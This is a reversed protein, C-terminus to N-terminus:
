RLRFRRILNMMYSLFKKGVLQRVIREGVMSKLSGPAYIFGMPNFICIALIRVIDVVKLQEARNFIGLIYSQFLHWKVDRCTMDSPMKKFKKFIRYVNFHSLSYAGCLYSLVYMINRLNHTQFFHISKIALQSDNSQLFYQLSERNSLGDFEVEDVNKKDLMSNIALGLQDSASREEIGLINQLISDAELLKNEKLEPITLLENITSELELFSSVRTIATDTLSDQWDRLPYIANDLFILPVRKLMAEIAASTFYNLMFCIDSAKLVDDLKLGADYFLNPLNHDLLNSYLENYDYGPHAKIVFQLDPRAQVFSIYHKIAERHKGPDACPAAFGTNIQATLLTILPKNKDLGIFAKAKAKTKHEYPHKYQKYQKYQKYEDEYRVCGIKKIRARDVCFSVLIDIDYNNWVLIEDSDGCLGQFGVRPGLGGHFLSATPIGKKKALGVLMKEVTFAEHAFIIASPKLLDLLVAFVDGYALANGMEEKIRKFQFILHRNAFIEPYQGDYCNLSHNFKDWFPQILNSQAKRNEPLAWGMELWYNSLAVARVNQLKEVATVCAKFEDAKM